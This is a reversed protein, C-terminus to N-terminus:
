PNKNRKINYTRTPEMFQITDDDLFRGTINVKTGSRDVSITVVRNLYTGTVPNTSGNLQENSSSNFAGSKQGDQDVLLAFRHVPSVFAGSGDVEDWVFTFNPIFSTDDGGVIAPGSSSGCGALVLCGLVAALQALCAIATRHHYM